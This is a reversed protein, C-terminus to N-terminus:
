FFWETTINQNKCKLSSIHREIIKLIQLHFYLLPLKPCSPAISSSSISQLLIESCGFGEGGGDYISAVLGGGYLTDIWM